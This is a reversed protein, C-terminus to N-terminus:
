ESVRGQRRERGGGMTTTYFLQRKRENREKDARLAMSKVEVKDLVNWECEHWREEEEVGNGCEAVLVIVEEDRRERRETKEEEEEQEEDGEDEAEEGVEDVEVIDRGMDDIVGGLEGGDGM